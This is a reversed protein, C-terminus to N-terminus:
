FNQFDTPGSAFPCGMNHESRKPFRIKKISERTDSEWRGRFEMSCACDSTSENESPPRKLKYRRWLRYGHASLCIAKSGIPIGEFSSISRSTRYLKRERTRGLATDDVAVVDPTDAYDQRGALANRLYSTVEAIEPRLRPNEELCRQTLSWLGDTVIPDKPRPPRKGMMVKMVVSTPSSDAFPVSGSSVKYQYIVCGVLVIAHSMGRDRGNWIFLRRNRQQHWSRRTPDRTRDVTRFLVRSHTRCTGPGSHRHFTWLGHYM